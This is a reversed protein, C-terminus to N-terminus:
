LFRFSSKKHSFEFDFITALTCQAYTLLSLIIRIQGLNFFNIKKVYFDNFDFLDFIECKPVKLLCINYPLNHSNISASWHPPDPINIGSGLDSKKGDRIRVTELGSRPDRIRMLSNLYNLGLFALFHNRLELFIHDPNNM